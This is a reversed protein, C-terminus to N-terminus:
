GVQFMAVAGAMAESVRALEVATQSIEAVTASLQQTATANQSVGQSSDEMREAIEGGASSQETTAIGIQRVPRVRATSAHIQTMRGATTRVSAVGGEVASQTDQILHEIEM